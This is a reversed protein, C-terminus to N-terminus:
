YSFAVSDDFYSIRRPTVVPRIFLPGHGHGLQGIFEGDGFSLVAGKNTLVMSHDCGAAIAVVRTGLLAEIVMPVLRDKQDGHGLQGCLGHGFSLVAGGDTLVMNYYAGAAIEVVRSGRLAEIVKPVLQFPEYKGNGLQGHWGQGFSLVEGEDTLVMSHGRGAAIAVVRVGRLEEIVKPVLQHEEDGHGLQGYRGQGFSLVEGENALVMSHEAGAAIAVVRVDRLAEIVKPELGAELPDDEEDGHGLQGYEGWGFSIVAGKDTLVMSHKGGAAIAVVRLGRLAEIVGPM